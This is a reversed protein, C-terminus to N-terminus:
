NLICGLKVTRPDDVRGAVTVMIRQHCRDCEIMMMGCRPAPYPLQVTCSISQGRSMDVDMGTPYAPNPPCQPERRGDIFRVSIM